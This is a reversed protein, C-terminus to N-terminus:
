PPTVQTYSTQDLVAGGTHAVGDMDSFHYVVGAQGQGQTQDGSLFGAAKFSCNQCSLGSPELIEFEFRGSNYDLNGSHAETLYFMWGPNTEVEARFITQQGLEIELDFRSLFNEGAPTPNNDYITRVPTAHTNQNLDSSLHYNLTGTMPINALSAGWIHAEYVQQDLPDSPHITQIVPSEAWSLGRDTPNRRDLIYQEVLGEPNQAYATNELQEVSYTFVTPDTVVHQTPNYPDGLVSQTIRATAFGGDYTGSPDNPMPENVPPIDVPPIDVPPIDVPPNDIQGGDIVPPTNDVPPYDIHEDLESIKVTRKNGNEDTVVLTGEETGQAMGPEFTRVVETPTSALAPDQNNASQEEESNPTSPKVASVFVPATASIMPAQGPFVEAHRGAPVLLEGFDNVLAVSGQGVHVRMAAGDMVVVFQTGRIGLTAVDTKLKYSDQDKKGISGSLARLGGKLLNVSVSGESNASPQSYEEVAFRSNPMLSVLGGDTFRLQVRGDNGTIVTDGADLENGKELPYSGAHNTLVVNGHSFLVMAAKDETAAHIPLAFALLCAFLFLQLQLKLSQTTTNM